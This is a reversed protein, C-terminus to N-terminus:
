AGKNKAPASASSGNLLASRIAAIDPKRKSNWRITRYGAKSTLADRKEDKDASHTKDDLEILAAIDGTKRDQAVFDIFKQAFKGRLSFYRKGDDRRSANPEMIAGMAVQAHFRFEPVAQELRDLFELENDSLLRKPKYDDEPAADAARKKAALYAAALVAAAILIFILFKM